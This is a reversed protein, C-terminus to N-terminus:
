PVLLGAFGFALGLSVEDLQALSGVTVDLGALVFIIVAILLLVRGLGFNYRM